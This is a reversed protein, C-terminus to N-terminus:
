LSLSPRKKQSHSDSMMGSGGRGFMAYIIKSVSVVSKKRRSATNTPSCSINYKTCTESLVLRFADVVEAFSDAASVEAFHVGGLEKALSQGEETSVERIHELDRKNALLLIPVIFASNDLFKDEPIADTQDRSTDTIEIDIPFGTVPTTSTYVFNDCCNKWSRPCWAGINKCFTVKADDKNSLFVDVRISYTCLVPSLFDICLGGLGFYRNAKKVHRRAGRKGRRNLSRDFCHPGKTWVSGSDIFTELCSPDSSQNTPNFDTSM